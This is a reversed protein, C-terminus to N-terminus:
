GGDLHGIVFGTVNVNCDLGLQAFYRNIDELSDLLEDRSDAAFRQLYASDSASLWTVRSDACRIRITLEVIERAYRMERESSSGNRVWAAIDATSNWADIHEELHRFPPWTM